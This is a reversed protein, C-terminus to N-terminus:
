GKPGGGSAAGGPASPRKQALIERRSLDREGYSGVMKVIEVSIRRSEIEMSRLEDQRYFVRKTKNKGDIKVRKKARNFNLQWCVGARALCAGLNETSFGKSKNEM